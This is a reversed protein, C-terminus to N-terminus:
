PQMGAIGPYILFLLFVSTLLMLPISMRTSASEARAELEAALRESLAHGRQTLAARIRTGEGSALQLTSALQELQVVGTERGLDGLAQHLPTRTARAAALANRLRRAAWGSSIRTSDMLAQEVGAGAALAPPVVDLLAALTHRMLLRREEAKEKLSSETIWVAVAALLVGLWIPVTFSIGAGMLNMIAVTAAPALLAMFAVSALSGLYEIPDRECIALDTMTQKRPLGFRTLPAALSEELRRKRSAPPAPARYIAAIATLLPPRAPWLGYAILLAGLGFGLGLLLISM